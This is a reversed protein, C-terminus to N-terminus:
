WGDRYWDYKRWCNWRHRVPSLMLRLLLCPFTHLKSGGTNTITDTPGAENTIDGGNTNGTAGSYANGGATANDVARKRPPLTPAAGAGGNVDGGM